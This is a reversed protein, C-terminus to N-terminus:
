GDARDPELAHSRLLSQLELASREEAVPAVPYVNGHEYVTAFYPGRMAEGPKSTISLLEVFVDSLPSPMEVMRTRETMYHIAIARRPRATRNSGSGHWTMAHHYHVFGAPVPCLEVQVAHGDVHDPLAEFNDLSSLEALHDGWRHSGPVMSMAGNDADAEDLAVWASLQADKPTLSAWIPSDQHWMSPGGELPPKYQVQDCWVKLQQPASLQAVEQVITPNSLLERFRGSAVWINVVQWIPADARGSLNAKMLPQVGSSTDALVRELETRLQALAADDLVRGGLVFGKEHYEATQADSLVIV